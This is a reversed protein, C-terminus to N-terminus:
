GPRRAEWLALAGAAPPALDGLSGSWLARLGDPTATVTVAQSFEAADLAPPGGGDEPVRVELCLSPTFRLLNSTIGMLTACAALGGADAVRAAIAPAEERLEREANATLPDERDVAEACGDLTALLSPAVALDPRRRGLLLRAQEGEGIVVLMTVGVVSARGDGRRCPDGGALADVRRRLPGLRGAGPLPEEDILADATALMTFYDTHGARVVTDDVARLGLIPGNWTGPATALVRELHPRGAALLEEDVALPLGDDVLAGALPRERDSLIVVPHTRGARRIPM